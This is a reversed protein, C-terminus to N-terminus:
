NVNKYSIILKTVCNTSCRRDLQPVEEELIYSSVYGGGYDDFVSFYGNLYFYYMVSYMESINLDSINLLLKKNSFKLRTYKEKFSEFNLDYYEDTIKKNLVFCKILDLCELTIENQIVRKAFVGFEESISNIKEHQKYFRKLEFLNIVGITDKTEQLFLYQSDFFGSKSEKGEEIIKDFSLSLVNDEIIQSKCSYFNLIIVILLIVKNM